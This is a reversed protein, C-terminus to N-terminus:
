PGADGSEREAPADAPQHALVAQGAVVHDRELDDGSVARHAPDAGVLVGVQEPRQAAAAAVEPDDGRELELQVRDAGDQAPHDHVRALARGLQQLEEPVEGGVRRVFQRM